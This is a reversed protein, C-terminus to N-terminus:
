IGPRKYTLFSFLSNLILFILFLFSLEPDYVTYKHHECVYKTQSAYLSAIISAGMHYLGDVPAPDPSGNIPPHPKPEEDM